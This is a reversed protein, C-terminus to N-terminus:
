IQNIEYYEKIERNFIFYLIFSNFLLFIISLLVTGPYPTPYEISENIKFILSIVFFIGNIIGIISFILLFNWITKKRNKIFLGTIIYISSLIIIFGFIWLYKKLFLDSGSFAIIATTLDISFLGFLVYLSFLIFLGGFFILISRLIKVKKNLNKGKKEKKDTNKNEIIKERKKM